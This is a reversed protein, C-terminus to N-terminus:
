KDTLQIIAYSSSCLFLINSVGVTKFFSRTNKHRTTSDKVTRRMRGDKKVREFYNCLQCLNNTESTRLKRLKVGKECGKPCFARSLM